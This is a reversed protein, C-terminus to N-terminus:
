AQVAEGQKEASACQKNGCKPCTRTSLPQLWYRRENNWSYGIWGEQWVFRGKCDRCSDLLFTRIRQLVPIQIRWHHVHWRPHKYWPRRDRLIGQAINTCIREFHYERERDTDHDPFNTHYGPLFCFEGAPDVCNPDHITMAARKSAEDFTMKVGILQAVHLILARQLAEALTRSGEWKKTSSRLFYRERGERWAFSKIRERQKLTLKPWSWNCAGDHGGKDRHWITVWSPRYRFMSRGDREMQAKKEKQEKTLRDHWPRKIEFAVAYPDHM